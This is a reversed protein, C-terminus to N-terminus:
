KKLRKIEDEINSGWGNFDKPLDKISHYTGKEKQRTAIWKKTIISDINEIFLNEIEDFLRNYTEAFTKEDEFQIKKQFLIPGTDIGEDILHISVGSQTEDYFSWFNPHAGRNFPLYSIHLNVIPCDCNKIFDSSLIHRYGFSIILLSDDIDDLSIKRDYTNVDCNKRELEEILRTESRGYGLFMIKNM